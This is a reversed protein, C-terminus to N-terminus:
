PTYRFRLGGLVISSRQPNLAPNRLLQINPTLALSPTVQWRLYTEFTTQDDLGTARPDQLSIAAGFQSRNRGFTYTIGTSFQSKMIAAEGDSIGVRVFPMWKEAFTWNASLAIGTGSDQGGDVSDAHWLTLVFAQAFRQSRTPSWGIYAQKYLELGGPFCDMSTQSGNLDHATLAVIWQNNFTKGIGAGCGLDPLPLAVNAITSANQFSTWQSGVGLVDVYDLPDLRGAVFGATGDAFYQQWYLPAVFAGVDTFSIANVGLYGTNAALDSPTTRGYAHRYEVKAIISGRNRTGSGFVTWTGFLRFVGSAGQKDGSLVANAAQFMAAYDAAISLDYSSGLRGLFSSEDDDILDDLQAPISTPGGLFTEPGSTPTEDAVAVFAWSWVTLTVITAVCLRYIHLLSQGVNNEFAM